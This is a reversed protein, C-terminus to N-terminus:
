LFIIKCSWVLPQAIVANLSQNLLQVKVVFVGVGIESRQFVYQPYQWNNAIHIPRGFMDYVTINIINEQNLTPLDLTIRDNSPNPYANLTTANPNTIGFPPIENSIIISSTVCLQRRAFNALTTLPSGLVFNLYPESYVVNPHENFIMSITATKGVQPLYENISLVGEILVLNAFQGVQHPVSSDKAVFVNAINPDDRDIWRRDPIGGSLNFVGKVAASVGLTDSAGELGGVQQIARQYVSSITDTTDLMATTMAVIAGESRGGLLFNTDSLRYNQRLTRLTRIAAKCDHVGHLLSLRFTDESRSVLPRQRYDIAACVYGRKAFLRCLAAIDSRQQSLVRGGHLWVIVPRQTTTDGNPQYIDMRLTDVNGNLNTVYSFPITSVSVETFRPQILYNLDNCFQAKTPLSMILFCCGILWIPAKKLKYTAFIKLM